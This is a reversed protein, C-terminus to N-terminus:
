FKVVVDVQLRNIDSYSLSTGKLYPTSSSIFPDVKRTVFYKAKVQVYDRPAYALWFIHGRRNTGGNGWDSDAWDSISANSELYKYFYAAEWTKASKAKGVVTGIQYGNNQNNAYGPKDTGEAVNRIFDGQVSVPLNLLHSDLQMSYLTLKYRGLLQASGTVRQNAEQIVSSNAAATSQLPNKNENIFSYLSIGM